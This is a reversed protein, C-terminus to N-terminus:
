PLSFELFDSFRGVLTDTGDLFLGHVKAQVDVGTGFQASSFTYSTSGLFASTKIWKTWRDTGTPRYRLFFEVSNAGSPEVYGMVLVRTGSTYSTFTPADAKDVGNELESPAQQEPPLAEDTSPNWASLVPQILYPIECVGEAEAIRPTGILCAQDGIEPFPLTVCRMGWCAVGAMNTEIVGTSARKEEFMRRGIRQAQAASPCFPLEIDFPQEGVRDIEDQYRSWSLPTEGDSEVLNIETMQFNMEPSYYKIRCINPREVSEPGFQLVNRTVQRGTLTLESERNDDILKIYVTGDRNEHIEAGISRLMALMVEVRKKGEAGWVGWARARKETGGSANTVLVDALDAQEATTEWDIDSASYGPFTMLMFTACLVGNDSWTWTSPDDADQAVDRPDHVLAARCVVEQLNRVSADSYLALYLPQDIGPSVYRWRTQAVGRLRHDSTWREPFESNLQTWVTETGTGTREECFLYGSWPFNQISGTGTAPPFVQRGGIYYEEFQDIPGRCHCVLRYTNKQYTDRFAYLGGLRVRGVAYVEPGEPNEYTQKFEGPDFAPTSVNPAMLLNLGVTAGFLVLNGIAAFTAYTFTATSGAAFLALAVQSGISVPDAYAHFPVATMATCVGLVKAM